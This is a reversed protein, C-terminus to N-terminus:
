VTPIKPTYTKDVLPGEIAGNASFYRIVQHHASQLFLVMRGM